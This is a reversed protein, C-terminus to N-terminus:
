YVIEMPLGTSDRPARDPLTKATGAAIRHATWLGAIADLVDDDALHKKLYSGRARTLIDAGLWEEALRM